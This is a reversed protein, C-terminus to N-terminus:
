VYERRVTRYSNEVSIVFVVAPV